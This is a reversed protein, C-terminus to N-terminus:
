VWVLGWGLTDGHPGPTDSSWVKWHRTISLTTYFTEQGLVAPTPHLKTQTTAFLSCACFTKILTADPNISFCTTKTQPIRHVIIDFATQMNCSSWSSTTYWSHRGIWPILRSRTSWGLAPPSLSSTSSSKCSPTMGQVCTKNTQSMFGDFHM